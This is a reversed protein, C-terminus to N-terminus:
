SGLYETNELVVHEASKTIVSAGPCATKPDPCGLKRKRDPIGVNMSKLLTRLKTRDVAQVDLSAGQACMYNVVEVHKNTIAYFLATKRCNDRFNIEMGLGLCFKVM